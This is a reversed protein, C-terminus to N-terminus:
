KLPCIKTLAYYEKVQRPIEALAATAFAEQNGAYDALKVVRVIKRQNGKELETLEVIPDNGVNVIVISVPARAAATVADVLAPIYSLPACALLVLVFYTRRATFGQVGAETVTRVIKTFNRTSACSLGALRLKVRRAFARYAALVADIGRERSRASTDTIPMCDVLEGNRLLGTGYVPFLRETDYSQLRTGIAQLSQWYPNVGDQPDIHLWRPDNVDGNNTTFDIGASLTLQLGGHVCDLFTPEGSVHFLLRVRGTYKTGNSIPIFTNASDTFDHFPRRVRGILPNSLEPERCDFVSIQIESNEVSKTLLTFAAWTCASARMIVETKHIQVDSRGCSEVVCFPRDRSFTHIRKL